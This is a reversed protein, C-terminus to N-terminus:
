PTPPVLSIPIAATAKSTGVANSAGNTDCSPSRIWRSRASASPYRAIPM